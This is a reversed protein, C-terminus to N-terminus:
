ERVARIAEPFMDRKDRRGLRKGGHSFPQCPPGGSLLDIKDRITGYDFARIDAEFISWDKVHSIGRNKNEKLTACSNPDIEIVASHAFGAQSVGLGLGGAGAFIEVSRMPHERPSMKETKTAM